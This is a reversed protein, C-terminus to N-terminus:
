QFYQNIYWTWIVSGYFYTIMTGIFIFPGFPIMQKKQVKGIFLLAGGFVAGVFTSLFLALLTDQWGLVLGILFFLKIDGGGMGSGRSLIAVLLLFGGGIIAGLIYSGIPLPHIWLRLLGMVVMGLYTIWDSIIQYKLDSLTVMIMLMAFPYAIVMEKNFGITFPILLFIAMTLLEGFLYISSIKASCYRCKGKLGVYSLVPILDMATLRHQCVPCHPPPLVISEKIPVRLAIQNLFSGIILSLFIYSTLFFLNM